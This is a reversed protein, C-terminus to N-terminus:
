STRYVNHLGQGDWTFPMWYSVFSNWAGASGRLIRDRQKYLIHHVGIKTHRETTPLGTVISSELILNGNKYYWVEQQNISVEVYTDVIDNGRDFDWMVAGKNSWVLEVNSQKKKVAKNIAAETEGKNLQWGM